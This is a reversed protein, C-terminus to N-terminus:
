FQYRLGVQIERANRANYSQGFLSSTMVGNPTGYNTRNFANTMNAFFNMNQQTKNSGQPPKAGLFFAKSINFNFNIFRPGDGFNRIMGAPRDNFVTDGNDDNGTTINFRNGSNMQTTETLFFGYFLKANVTTNVSHVSQPSRGWDARLNYNNSPISFAGDNDNFNRYYNYNGSLNFISFRHRVSLGVIQNRYFGTSELNLLNGRAANPRTTFGPLPANLNRTRFQRVGRSTDYKGSIFFNKFFTKEVSISTMAEYPIALSPDTLRVSAPPVVTQTGSKFPDPYSPNTIVIDYQRGDLRLQNQMMWDWYRQYFVGAGGRIVTTKNMAYAVGLRPAFNNHDSLGQQDEFRVGFMATLRPTVKWDNQMFFSWMNVNIDLKPDGRTVTFSDPKAANYADLDSFTFNGLFNYEAYSNNVTHNLGYGAKITLKEGMRTYLGSFGYDRRDAHSRNQAGGSNFSGLVNIAIADKAPETEDHNGNYNFRNELITLSSIASFQRLGIWTYKGESTSAREPLSFGGIGNNKNGWHGIGYNFFLSHKEALQLNGGGNFNRDTNQHSIGLDYLGQPTVAHITDPNESFWNNFNLNASLRNPIFPGNVGFYVSRQQYPPKNRAFPNRANLAEDKFDVNANGHFAGIGGREIVETREGGCGYCPGESTFMNNNIRILQTKQPPAATKAAVTAGSAAKEALHKDWAALQEKTLYTGLRKKFETQMWQIAAVARDQQQGQVPGSRFDMLQGFLDESAQRRDEMMLAIAKDLQETFPLKAEALVTKVEDRLEILPNNANPADQGFLPASVVLLLM